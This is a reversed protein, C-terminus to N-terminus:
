PLVEAITLTASTFDGPGLTTLHVLRLISQMNGTMFMGNASAMTNAIGDGMATNESGPVLINNLLLRAGVVYNPILGQATSSNEWAFEYLTNPALIIDSTGDVHAIANGQINITNFIYPSNNTLLEEPAQFQGISGIPGPPIPPIPPMPPMPPMPGTPTIPPCPCCCCSSCIGCQTYLDNCYYPKIGVCCYNTGNRDYYSSNNCICSNIKSMSICKNM